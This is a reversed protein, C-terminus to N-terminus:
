TVSSTKPPDIQPLSGCQTKLEAFDTGRLVVLSKQSSHSAFWASKGANEIDPTESSAAPSLSLRIAHHCDADM